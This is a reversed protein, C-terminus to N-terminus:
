EGIGPPQFLVHLGGFVKGRDCVPQRHEPWDLRHRQASPLAGHHNEFVHDRGAVRHARELAPRRAAHELTGPLLPEHRSLQPQGRGLAWLLEGLANSM